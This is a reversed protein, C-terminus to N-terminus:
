VRLLLGVVWGYEVVWGYKAGSALTRKQALNLSDLPSSAPKHPNRQNQQSPADHDASCFNLTVM